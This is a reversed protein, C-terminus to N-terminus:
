ESKLEQRSTVEVVKVKTHNNLYKIHTTVTLYVTLHM